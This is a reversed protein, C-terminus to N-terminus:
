FRVNQKLCRFYQRYWPQAHKKSVYLMATSCNKWDLNTVLFVKFMLHLSHFVTQRLLCLFLYIDPYYLLVFWYPSFFDPNSPLRHFVLHHLHLGSNSWPKKSLLKSRRQNWLLCHTSRIIFTLFKTIKLFCSLMHDNRKTQQLLQRFFM